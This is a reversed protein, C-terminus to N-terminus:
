NTVIRNRPDVVTADLLVEEAVARFVYEGTSRQAPQNPVSASGTPQNPNKAAMAAQEEDAKKQAEAAAKELEYDSPPTLDQVPQEVAPAQSGQTAPQQAFALGAFFTLLLIFALQARPSPLMTVPKPMSM